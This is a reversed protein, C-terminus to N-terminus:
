TCSIQKLVKDQFLSTDDVDYDLVQLVEGDSSVREMLPISSEYTEPADPPVLIPIIFSGANKADNAAIETSGDAINQPKGTEGDTILVIFRQEIPSASLTDQCLKIGSPHDDLGGSYTLQSITSMAQGASALGSAIRGDSAFQVVSFSKSDAPLVALSTVVVRAYAQIKAFNECCSGWDM